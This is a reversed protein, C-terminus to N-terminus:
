NLNSKRNSQRTNSIEKEAQFGALYQSKFDIAKDLPFPQVGEVM